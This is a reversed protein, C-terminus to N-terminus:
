EQEHLTWEIAGTELNLVWFEGSGARYAVHGGRSIALESSGEGAGAANAAPLPTTWRREGSELGFATLTVGSKAVFPVVVCEERVAALPPTTLRGLEPDENAVNAQWLWRRGTVVGASAAGNREAGLVVEASGHRPLLGRKVEFGAGSPLWRAAKAADVFEFNPADANSAYVGECAARKLTAPSGTTISYAAFSQDAGVLGFEREAACAHVAATTRARQWASQGTAADLGLLENPLAVILTDDLPIRLIREPADSGGLPRRWLERGTAPDRATLWRENASGDLPTVLALFADERSERELLVLGALARLRERPPPPSEVVPSPVPSPAPPQPRPSPGSASLAGVLALTLVAFGVSGAVFVQTRVRPDAFLRPSALPADPRREKPRREHVEVTTHCYGCSRLNVGPLAAPLPAGCRPCEDNSSRM